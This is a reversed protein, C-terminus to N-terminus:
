LHYKGHFGHKASSWGAGLADPLLAAENLNQIEGKAANLNGIYDVKSEVESFNSISGPGKKRDWTFRFAPQASRQPLSQPLSPAPSGPRSTSANSATENDAM